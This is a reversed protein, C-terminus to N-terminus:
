LTTVAQCFSPRPAVMFSERAMHQLHCRVAVTLRTVGGVDGGGGVDGNVDAGGGVVDGGWMVLWTVVTVM